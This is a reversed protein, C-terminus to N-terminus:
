ENESKDNDALFNLVCRRADDITLVAGDLQAEFIHDLVTKYHLGGKLYKPPLIKNQAWERLHRGLLVPAPPGNLVGLRCAQDSFGKLNVAPRIGCRQRSANIDAQVLRILDALVAPQIDRALRRVAGDTVNQQALLHYPRMHHTVLAIVQQGVSKNLTIRDLFRRVIPAAALDHDAPAQKPVNSIAKGLDHLLAALCLIWVHDDQLHEQTVIRAMESAAMLSHTLADGESHSEPDQQVHSLAHLEPFLSEFVGMRRALDLAPYVAAPSGKCFLKMLEEEIRERPLTTLQGERVMRRCLTFTEEAVQFNLRAAFQIVRLVRLPDEEFRESVHRLIKHTLDSQGNCPDIIAGTEPDMSIANITLDRRLAADHISMFPDATVDFARHGTGSKKERRPISIDLIEGSKLRLKLVSFAAGVMMLHGHRRCISKLKAPDLHFVEIDRDKKAPRNLLLDRVYGGVLYPQGGAVKLDRILNLFLADDMEVGRSNREPIMTNMVCRYGSGGQEAVREM